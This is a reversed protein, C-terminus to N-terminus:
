RPGGGRKAYILGLYHQAAADGQAAALRYLRLAEEEDRALGGRGHEQMWGLEAQAAAHGQDAALKFLRVADREDVPAGGLGDRRLRALATQAGAHSQAAALAYLRAAETEDRPLGGQGLAHLRGLEFRGSADGASARRWTPLHEPALGAPPRPEPPQQPRAQPPPALLAALQSRTAFVPQAAFTALTPRGREVWDEELEALGVADPKPARGVVAAAVHQLLATLAPAEPAGSWGTLDATPAATFEAPASVGQFPASLLRSEAQAARAEALVWESRVSMGCWLALTLRAEVRERELNAAFSEGAVLGHEHWVSYGYLRIVRALHRAALRREVKYSLFVDSMAGKRTRSKGTRM